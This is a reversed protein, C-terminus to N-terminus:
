RETTHNEPGGLRPAVIIANGMEDVRVVFQRGQRVILDEREMQKLHETVRPRSASVLDALDQHSFFARLLMGRSEKIGFDSALERLTIAIREHLSLNLFISSRLLLRYWQKLDNEHFRKFAVETSHGAIGNFANWGLSGVRCDNFAECRFDFRGFQLLPFEPIPGPPLLAVTVRESRANCCTIRAIGKLLIHADSALAAERFITQARRYDALALVGVLSHMEAASLWSLAKIRSLNDFDIDPRNRTENL